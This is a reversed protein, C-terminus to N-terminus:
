NINRVYLNHEQCLEELQKIKRVADPWNDYNENYSGESNTWTIQYQWKPKIRFYVQISKAPITAVGDGVDNWNKLDFSFQMDSMM